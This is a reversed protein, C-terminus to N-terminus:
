ESSLRTMKGDSFDSNKLSKWSVYWSFYSFHRSATMSMRLQPGSLLLLKARYMLMFFHLGCAYASKLM